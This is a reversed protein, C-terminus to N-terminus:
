VAEDLYPFRAERGHASILRDDCGLNRLWLRGTDLALEAALGAWGGGADAPRGFCNSHRGKYGALQEDAGRCCWGHRAGCRGAPRPRRQSRCRRRNAPVYRGFCFGFPNSAFRLIIPMQFLAAVLKVRLIGGFCDSVGM